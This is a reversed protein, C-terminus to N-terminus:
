DAGYPVERIRFILCALVLAITANTVVMIAYDRSWAPGAGPFLNQMVVNLGRGIGPHARLFDTLGQLREIGGATFARVAGQLASLFIQFGFYIAVNQYSRTFSGLLAMLSCILFADLSSNVPAAWQVDLQSTWWQTGWGVAFPVWVAIWLALVAGAVRSLLYTSRNIPKVLILQLTGSSFEPGILQCGVVIFLIALVPQWEPTSRAFAAISIAIMSVFVVFIVFAPSGLHRRLTDAIVTRNM